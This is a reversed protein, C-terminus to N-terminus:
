LSKETGPSGKAGGRGQGSGAQLPVRHCVQRPGRGRREQRGHWSTAQGSGESEFGPRHAEDFIVLDLHGLEGTIRERLGEERLTNLSVVARLQGRRPNDIVRDLYQVFDKRTLVDFPQDFKRNLEERWKDRLRPPCVILVRDLIKRAQLETLILGAEITKGLGVEDAILLRRDASDLIKLLPKYQHPEFLIRQAKYAYLTGQNERTMREVALACRFAQIRGWRGDLALDQISDDVQDLIELDEELVRDVRKGFHVRYWYDGQSRVPDNAVHGWERTSRLVVADGKRFMPEEPM